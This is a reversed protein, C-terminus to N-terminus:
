IRKLHNFVLLNLWFRENGDCVFGLACKEALVLPVTLILLHGGSLPCVTKPASNSCILQWVVPSSQAALQPAMRQLFSTEELNNGYSLVLWVLRQKPNEPSNRLTQLHSKFGTGFIKTLNFRSPSERGLASVCKFSYPTLYNESVQKSKLFCALYASHGKGARVRFLFLSLFFFLRTRAWRHKLCVVSM